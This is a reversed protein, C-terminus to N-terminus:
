CEYYCYFNSEIAIFFPCQENHLVYVCSKGLCKIYIYLIVIDFIAVCWFNYTKYFQRGGAKGGFSSSINSDKSPSIFLVIFDISDSKNDCMVSVHRSQVIINFM